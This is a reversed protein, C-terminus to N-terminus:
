GSKLQRLEIAQKNSRSSTSEMGVVRENNKCSNWHSRPFRLAPLVSCESVRCVVACGKIANNSATPRFGCTQTGRRGLYRFFPRFTARTRTRGHGDTTLAIRGRSRALEVEEGRARAAHGVVAVPPSATPSHLSPRVSPPVALDLICFVYPPRLFFSRPDNRDSLRNMVPIVM